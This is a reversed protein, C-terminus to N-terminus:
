NGIPSPRFSGELRVLEHAARCVNVLYTRLPLVDSRGWLVGNYVPTVYRRWGEKGGLKLLYEDDSSEVVIWAVSVRSSSQKM